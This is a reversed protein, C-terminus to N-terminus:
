YTGNTCGCTARPRSQILVAPAPQKSNTSPRLLTAALGSRVIKRSGIYMHVANGRLMRYEVGSRRMRGGCDILLAGTQTSGREAGTSEVPKPPDRGVVIVFAGAIAWWVVYLPM